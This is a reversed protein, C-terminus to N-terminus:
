RSTRFFSDAVLGDDNALLTKSLAPDVARIGAETALTVVEAVLERVLETKESLPIKLETAIPVGNELLRRVEVEGHKLRWLKWSCSTRSPVMARSPPAMNPTTGRGSHSFRNGASSRLRMGRATRHRSMSSPGRFIRTSSPMPVFHSPLCRSIYPM